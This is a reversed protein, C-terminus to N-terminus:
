EWAGRLAPLTRYRSIKNLIWDSAENHPSLLLVLRSNASPKMMETQSPPILFVPVCNCENNLSSEKVTCGVSLLSHQNHGKIPTMGGARLGSLQKSSSASCGLVTEWCQRRHEPTAVPNSWPTCDVTSPKTLKAWVWRCRQINVSAFTSTVSAMHGRGRVCCVQCWTAPADDTHAPLICRLSTAM